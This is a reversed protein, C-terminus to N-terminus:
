ATLEQALKNAERWSLGAGLLLWLIRDYTM